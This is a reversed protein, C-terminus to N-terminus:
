LSQFCIEKLRRESLRDQYFMGKQYCWVHLGDPKHMAQWIDYHRKPGIVITGTPKMVRIVEAYRRHIISSKESDDERYKWISSLGYICDVTGDAFPLPEYADTVWRVKDVVGLVEHCFAWTDRM